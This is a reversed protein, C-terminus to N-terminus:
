SLANPEDRERWKQGIFGAPKPCITWLKRNMGKSWECDWEKRKPWYIEVNITSDQPSGECEVVVLYTGARKPPDTEVSRWKAM